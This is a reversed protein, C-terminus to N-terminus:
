RAERVCMPQGPVMDLWPPRATGTFVACRIACQDTLREHTGIASFGTADVGHISLTVGSSLFFRSGLEDLSAAFRGSGARFQQQAAVLNRLDSKVTTQYAGWKTSGMKGLGALAAAALFLLLSAAYRTALARAVSNAGLSYTRVLALTAGASRARRRARAVASRAQHYLAWTGFLGEIVGGAAGVALLAESQSMSATGCADPRGMWVLAIGAPVYVLVAATLNRHVPWFPVLAAAWNWAIPRWPHARFRAFRERYYREWNPGIYAALLREDLEDGADPM